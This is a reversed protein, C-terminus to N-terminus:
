GPSRRPLIGVPYHILANGRVVLFLVPAPGVLDERIDFLLIQPGFMVIGDNSFMRHWGVDAGREAAGDNTRIGVASGLAAHHIVESAAPGIAMGIIKIHADVLIIPADNRGFGDTM